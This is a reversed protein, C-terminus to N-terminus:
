NSLFVSCLSKSVNAGKSGILMGIIGVVLSVNKTKQPAWFQLAFEQPTPESPPLNSPFLLLPPVLPLLSTERFYSKGATRAEAQKRITPFVWKTLRTLDCYGM